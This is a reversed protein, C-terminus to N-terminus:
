GLFVQTVIVKLKYLTLPLAFDGSHEGETLYQGPQFFDHCTSEDLKYNFKM